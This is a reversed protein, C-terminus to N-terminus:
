RGSAALQSVVDNYRRDVYGAMGVKGPLQGAAAFADALQQESAVLGDDIPIPTALLRPVAVQAVSAPIGTLQTYINSWEGAHSKAWLEAKEIRTVYDRIAANKGADALATRGAVQVTLANSLSRGGAAGAGTFADVGSVLERAGQEAVTQAVYPEWVVWAAVSGQIFAAYADSPQLYSLHVDAPSLKAEALANLLTGNASSGKAVAVTKGRLDAV